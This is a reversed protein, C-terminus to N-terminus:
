RDSHPEPAPENAAHDLEDRLADLAQHANSDNVQEPRVEPPEPTFRTPEKPPPKTDTWMPMEVCGAATFALTLLLIGAWKM